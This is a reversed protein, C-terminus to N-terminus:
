TGPASMVILVTLLLLGALMLLAPGWQRVHEFAGTTMARRRMM